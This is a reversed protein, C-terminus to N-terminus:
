RTPQACSHSPERGVVWDWWLRALPVKGGQGLEGVFVVQDGDTGVEFGAGKQRGVPTPEEGHRNVAPLHAPETRVPATYEERDVELDGARESSRHSTVAHRHIFGEILHEGATGIRRPGLAPDVVPDGLGISLEVQHPPHM